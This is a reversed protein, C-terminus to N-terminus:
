PATEPRRELRAWVAKGPPQPRVGHATTLLDVLMMGRGGEADDDADRPAPRHPSGDRVAVVVGDDSSEIELCVPPSAHRIANTVMESVVLAVDDHLDDIGLRSSSEAVAARAQAPGSLDHPVVMRTRPRSLRRDVLDLAAACDVATLVGALQPLVSPPCVVLVARPWGSPLASLADLEKHAGESVSTVDTLDIVVGRPELALIQSVTSVLRGAERSNVPGQASLLEVGDSVEQRLLVPLVEESNWTRSPCPRCACVTSTDGLLLMWSGSM